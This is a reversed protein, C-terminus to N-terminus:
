PKIREYNKFDFLTKGGLIKNEVFSILRYKLREHTHEKRDKRRPGSDQLMDAWDFQDMWERMVKPHTGKFVPVKDLPGYDFNDKLDRLLKNSKEEGHYTKYTRKRKGSMIEPPRAYGYHFIEADLQVVRLKRTGESRQYERYDDPKFADYVRFSQADKWSHVAPNNKIIRMEKKYWGHSRHVHNYDGWFHNYHFLLGEVRNDEHYKKLTERIEPYDKEHLAEDSQIYILWDGTCHEKAIDTQRAYETNKPYKESNWVTRVIKIKDTEISNIIAETSDDDDNNGLAVIFEDCLPLVSEIAAKVPIYLKEANRVFTFGSVKM